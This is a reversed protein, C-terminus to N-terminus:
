HDLQEAIVEIPHTLKTNADTQRLGARLHMACGSNSTALWNPQPDSLSNLTKERLENALEPYDLMLRGGAGCCDPNPLDRVNLDPILGWSNEHTQTQNLRVPPTYSM